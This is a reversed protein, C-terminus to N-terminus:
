HNYTAYYTYARYGYSNSTPKHFLLPNTDKPILTSINQQTAAWPRLVWFNRELLEAGVRASLRHCLEPGKLPHTECAKFTAPSKSQWVIHVM